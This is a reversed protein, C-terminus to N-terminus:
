NQMPKFYDGTATSSLAQFYTSCLCLFSSATLMLFVHSIWQCFDADCNKGDLEHNRLMQIAVSHGESIQRQTIGTNDNRYQLHPFQPWVHEAQPRVTPSGPANLIGVGAGQVVEAVFNETFDASICSSQM